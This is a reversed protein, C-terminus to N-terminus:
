NSITKIVTCFNLWREAFSDSSHSDCILKRCFPKDISVINTLIWLIQWYERYKYINVINTLIKRRYYTVYPKQWYKDIEDFRLGFSTSADSISHIRCWSLRPTLLPKPKMVCHANMWSSGKEKINKKFSDSTHCPLILQSFLEFNLFSPRSDSVSFGTLSENNSQVESRMM